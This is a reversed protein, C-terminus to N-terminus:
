LTGALERMRRITFYGRTDEFLTHKNLMFRWNIKNFNTTLFQDLDDPNTLVTLTQGPNQINYVSVHKGTKIMRKWIKAGAATLKSDSILGLKDPNDNIIFQYADDMWPPSGPVLKGAMNIYINKGQTILSVILDIKINTEHWYWWDTGTTIKKFSNNCTIINSSRNIKEQLDNSLISWTDFTGISQPSEFLWSNIFDQRSDYELNEFFENNM